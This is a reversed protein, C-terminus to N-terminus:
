KPAPAPAPALVPKAACHKAYTRAMAAADADAKEVFAAYREYIPAADGCRGAKNLVDAQGWIAVSKGWTDEIPWRREAERFAAVGDDIRGARAMADARDYYAWPDKPDTKIAEEALALAKGHDGSMEASASDSTLKAAPGPAATQKPVPMEASAGVAWVTVIAICCGAKATFSPRSM